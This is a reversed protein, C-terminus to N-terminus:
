NRDHLNLTDKCVGSKMQTKTKALTGTQMYGFNFPNLTVVAPSIGMYWKSRGHVGVPCNKLPVVNNM